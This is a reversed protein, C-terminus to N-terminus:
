TNEDEIVGDSNVTFGYIESKHELTDFVEYCEEESDCTVFMRGDFIAQSDDERDIFPAIQEIEKFSLHDPINIVVMWKKSMRCFAEVLDTLCSKQMLKTM